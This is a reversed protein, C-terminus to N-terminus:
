PSCSETSWTSSRISATVRSSTDATAASTSVAVGVRATTPGNSSARSKVAATAQHPDRHETGAAPHAGLGAAGDLGGVVELQDGPDARGVRQRQQGVRPASTATSRVRGSATISLRCNQM